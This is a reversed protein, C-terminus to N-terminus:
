FTNPAFTEQTRLKTAGTTPALPKETAREPCAKAADRAFFAKQVRNVPSLETVVPNIAQCEFVDKSFSSTRCAPGAAAGASLMSNCSGDAPSSNSPRRRSFSASPKRRTLRWAEFGSCTCPKRGPWTTVSCHMVTLM